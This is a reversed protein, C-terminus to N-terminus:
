RCYASARRLWQAALDLLSGSMGGSHRCGRAASISRADMWSPRLGRRSAPQLSENSSEDVHGVHSAVSAGGVQQIARSPYIILSDEFAASRVNKSRRLGAASCHSRSDMLQIASRYREGMGGWNHSLIRSSNLRGVRSWTRSRRADKWSGSGTIRCTTLTKM